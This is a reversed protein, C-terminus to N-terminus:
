NRDLSEEYVARFKSKDSGRMMDNQFSIFFKVAFGIYNREFFCRFVNKNMYHIMYGLQENTIPNRVSFVECSFEKYDALADKDKSNMFLSEGVVKFSIKLDDVIFGEDEHSHCLSLLHTVSETDHQTSMLSADM